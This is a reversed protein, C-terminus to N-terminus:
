QSLVINTYACSLFANIDRLLIHSESSWNKNFECDSLHKNLDKTGFKIYFTSFVPLNENLGGGVGGWYLIGTV